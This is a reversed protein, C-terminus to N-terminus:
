SVESEMQRTLGVFSGTLLPKSEVMFKRALVDNNPTFNAYFPLLAAGIAPARPGCRGQLLVPSVLGEPRNKSLFQETKAVLRALSHPPLIGDIIVTGIDVLAVAGIAAQALAQACDTEWEELFPQMQSTLDAVRKIEIGKSRLYKLLIYVSGRRQLIEFMGAPPAFGPLTSPSVPFTNFAAANGNLGIELNDNMVLGGGIITGIYFYIFNNQAEGKALMLETIAAASADNEFFVDHRIQANLFDPLNFTAWSKQLDAPFGLDEQWGNFFYPMSVGVGILRQRLEPELAAELNNVAKVSLVRIDDPAPYDYDYAAQDLVQGAMDIVVAQMARRGIHLGISLARAPNPAYLVSPQGIKGQRKGTQLLYGADHLADVITAVAQPTLNAHRAIEAKSATDLRRITELVVRENYHRIQLSNSGQRSRNNLTKNMVSVGYAM